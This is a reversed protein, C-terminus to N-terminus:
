HGHRRSTEAGGLVVAGARPFPSAAGVPMAPLRRWIHRMDRQRNSITTIAQGSIMDNAMGGLTNYIVEAAPAALM